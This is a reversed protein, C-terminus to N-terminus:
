PLKHPTSYMETTNISGLTKLHQQKQITDANVKRKDAGQINVYFYKNILAEILGVMARMLVAPWGYHPQSYNITAVNNHLTM